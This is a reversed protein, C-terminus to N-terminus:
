NCGCGSLDLESSWLTIIKGDKKKMVLSRSPAALKTNVPFSDAFTFYVNTTGKLNAFTKQDPYNSPCDMCNGTYQSKLAKDIEPFSGFDLDLSLKSGFLISDKNQADTLNLDYQYYTLCQDDLFSLSKLKCRSKRSISYYNISPPNDNFLESFEEPFNVLVGMSDLSQYAFNEQLIEHEKANDIFEGDIEMSGAKRIIGIQNKKLQYIPFLPEDIAIILNAADITAELKDLLGQILKKNDGALEKNESLVEKLLGIKSTKEPAMNAWLTECSGESKTLTSENKKSTDTDSTCSIITTFLLPLAVQLRIRM